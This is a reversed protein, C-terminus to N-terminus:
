NGNEMNTRKQLSYVHRTIVLGKRTNRIVAVNRKYNMEGMPICSRASVIKKNWSSSYFLIHRLPNVIPGWWRTSLRFSAVILSHFAHTLRHTLSGHTLQWAAPPMAIIVATPMPVIPGDVTAAVADVSTRNSRAAVCVM